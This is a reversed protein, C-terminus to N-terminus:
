SEHSVLGGFITRASQPASRFSQNALNVSLTRQDITRCIRATMNVSESRASKPRSNTARSKPAPAVRSRVLQPPIIPPRAPHDVAIPM